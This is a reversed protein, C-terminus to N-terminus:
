DRSGERGVGGWWWRGLNFGYFISKSPCDELLDFGCLSYSM